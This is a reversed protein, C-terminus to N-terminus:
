DVDFCYSERAVDRRHAPLGRVIRERVYAPIDDVNKLPSDGDPNLAAVAQAASYKHQILWRVAEATCRPVECGPTRAYGDFHHDAMADGALSERLWRLAVGDSSTELPYACHWFDSGPNSLLADATIEAAGAVLAWEITPGRGQGASTDFDRYPALLQAVLADRNTTKTIM